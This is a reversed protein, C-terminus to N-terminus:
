FPNNDVVIEGFIDENDDDTGRNLRRKVMEIKAPAVYLYELIAEVLELMIPIDIDKVEDDGAHAGINRLQKLQYAMEALINPIRGIDALNKIKDALVRGQAKEYNCVVELTRGILVACANADVYRVKLATSYAADVSSPLSSLKKAEKPYLIKTEGEFGDTWIEDLVPRNCIICELIRWTLTVDVEGIERGYDRREIIKRYETRVSFISKHGCHDCQRVLQKDAM